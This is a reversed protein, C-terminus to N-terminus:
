DKVEPLQDLDEKMHRRMQARSREHLRRRIARDRLEEKLSARAALSNAQSQFFKAFAGIFLSVTELLDILLCTPTWRLSVPEEETFMGSSLVVASIADGETEHSDDSM